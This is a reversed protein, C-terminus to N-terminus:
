SIVDVELFHENKTEAACCPVWDVIVYANEAILISAAQEYLIPHWAGCVCVVYEIACCLTGQKNIILIIGSRRGRVHRYFIDKAHM